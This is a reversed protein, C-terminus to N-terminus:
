ETGEGATARARVVGTPGNKLIKAVAAETVGMARAMAAISVGNHSHKILALRRKEAILARQLACARIEATYEAIDRLVTPNFRTYVM